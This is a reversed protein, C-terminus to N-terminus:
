LGSTSTSGREASAISSSAKRVARSASRTTATTPSDCSMAWSADLRVSRRMGALWRRSSFASFAVPLGSTSTSIFPRGSDSPQSCSFASAIRSVQNLPVSPPLAMASTSNPSCLGLPLSVM